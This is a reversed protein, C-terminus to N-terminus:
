GPNLAGALDEDWLPLEDGEAILRRAAQNYTSFVAGPRCFADIAAPRGLAREIVEAMKWGVTYWPGQVGFYSRMKSTVAAEDGAQGALVKRFFADQEALDTAFRTMSEDWVRRAEAPSSAHPHVEPGGAAAMMALGEGFAGSWTRLLGVSGPRGDGAAPSCSQAFGIHHLEHAVINDVEAASKAPDLSLFIAAQDSSAEYVFSNPRPKILFYVEARLAAGPPLYAFARAAAASMDVSRWTELAERLADRQGVAAPSALFAAFEADTFARSMSAERQKLRQYPRTTTLTAFASTADRGDAHADLVALAAVAASDDRRVKAEQAASPAAWMVAAAFPAAWGAARIRM